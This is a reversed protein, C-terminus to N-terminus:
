RIQKFRVILHVPGGDKQVEFLVPGEFSCDLYIEHLPVILSYDAPLSKGIYLKQKYFYGNYPNLRYRRRNWETISESLCIM